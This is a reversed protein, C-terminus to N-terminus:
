LFRKAKLLLWSRRYFVNLCSLILWHVLLKRSMLKQIAKFICLFDAFGMWLGFADSEESVLAFLSCDDFNLRMKASIKTPLFELLKLFHYLLHGEDLFVETWIKLITFRFLFYCFHLHFFNLFELLKLFFESLAISLVLDRFLDLIFNM